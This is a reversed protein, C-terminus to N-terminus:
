LRRMKSLSTHILQRKSQYKRRKQRKTKSPSIVYGKTEEGSIIEVQKSVPLRCVDMWNKVDYDLGAVEAPTKGKLSHHPKFYNYYVKFGDTFQILTDVNRFAKM